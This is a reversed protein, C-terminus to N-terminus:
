IKHLFFICELDIDCRLNLIDTFTQRSSIKKFASCKTVLSSITICCWTGPQGTSFKRHWRWPWPWQSPAYSWFIIRKREREIYRLFQQNKQSWVQDPPVDDDALTDKWFITHADQALTDTLFIPKSDELDLDYYSQWYTNQVASGKAVLSPRIACMMMLQITKHFSQIASSYHLDCDCTLNLIGTVTRRASSFVKM